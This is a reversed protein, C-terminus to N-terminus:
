KKKFLESNKIEEMMFDIIDEEAFDKIKDKAKEVAPKIFNKPKIGFIFVSRAIAFQESLNSTYGSFVSAPPMKSKFSFPATKTVPRNVKFGKDARGSKTQVLGVGNVGEDQYKGYSAMEFDIIFGDDTKKFGAKISNALKGTNKPVSKKFDNELEELAETITKYENM